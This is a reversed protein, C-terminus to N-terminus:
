IITIKQQLNTKYLSLWRKPIYKTAHIIGIGQLYASIKPNLRFKRSFVMLLLQIYVMNYAAKRYEKRENLTSTQSNNDATAIINFETALKIKETLFIIFETVRKITATRFNNFETPLLTIATAQKVIAITLINRATAQNISSTELM